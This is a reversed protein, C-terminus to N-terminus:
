EEGFPSQLDRTRVKELIGLDDIGPLDVVKLGAILVERNQEIALARAEAIDLLKALLRETERSREISNEITSLKQREEQLQPQKAGATAYDEDRLATNIDREIGTVVKREASLEERKQDLLEELEIQKKRGITGVNTLSDMYTNLTGTRNESRNLIDRVDVQLLQGLEAILAYLEETTTEEQLGLLVALTEVGGIASKTDTIDSEALYLALFSGLMASPKRTETTPIALLLLPPIADLGIETTANTGDSDTRSCAALVLLLMALSGCRLSTKRQM